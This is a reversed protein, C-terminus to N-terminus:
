KKKINIKYDKLTNFFYEIAEESSPAAQVGYDLKNKIILDVGASLTISVLVAMASNENSGTEDLEYSGCWLKQGKQNQAELSVSLVVRDKENKEYQYKTWLEDSKQQIKEDINNSTNEIIKFIDRWAYSWGNLRLTGRIFKKIKWDDSFFYEQIYPLSDRNPYAEFAENNVEHLNVHKYPTVIKEEFNDIFKAKNKLANIVGIPSWSFKYKFDNPIATIGGCFSKYSVSINNLNEKKLEKVLLHSFFHDIGPDLGIENIFVLKQNKASKNLDKLASSLYSSSAFHCKKDLCIKAIEIHMNATLQSVVIDGPKLLSSLELLNLEKANVNASNVHNISFQAKSITRNWVTLKNNSKAIRRIGPLSSLGAGLWHIHTM